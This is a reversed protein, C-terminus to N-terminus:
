DNIIKKILRLKHSYNGLEESFIGQHDLKDIKIKGSAHIIQNGEIILGVHKIESEEDDFFALDGTRAEHFFNITEGIVSQDKTDRPIAIGNQKYLNQVFGSCDLGFSSRGGWLYPTSILQMASEQLGKRLDPIETDFIHEPVVYFQKLIEIQHEGEHFTSGAGILMHSSDQIKNKLFNFAKKSHYQNKNKYQNFNIEDLFTITKTDIWGSYGDFDLKVFSFNTESNTELLIFLEGFLVQSIQESRESAEARMPIYAQRCIGFNTKM